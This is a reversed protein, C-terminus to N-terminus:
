IVLRYFVLIEPPKQQDRHALMIDTEVLHWAMLIMRLIVATIFQGPCFYLLDNRLISHYSGFRCLLGFPNGGISNAFPMKLSYYQRKKLHRKYKGYLVPSLTIIHCSEVTM